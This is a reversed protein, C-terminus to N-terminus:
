GHLTLLEESKNMDISDFIIYLEPESVTVYQKDNESLNYYDETFFKFLYNPFGLYNRDIDTIQALCGTHNPLFPPKGFAILFIWDPSYRDGRSIINRLEAEWLRNHIIFTDGIKYKPLLLINKEYEAQTDEREKIEKPTEELKEVLKDMEEASLCDSDDVGIIAGFKDKKM